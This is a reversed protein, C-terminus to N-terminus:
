EQQNMFSFKLMNPTGNRAENSIYLDGNPAFCIGEPQKFLKKNLRYGAKIKGNQDAILLLHNVSAILYWDGTKPHIAAGSIQLNDNKNLLEKVPSELAINFALVSDFQDTILNYSFVAPSVPFAICNKCFILLRSKGPDHLIAEFDNKGKLNIKSEKSSISDTFPHSIKLVDGNSKLAYPYPDVFCIDEYDGGKHFRSRLQQKSDAISISFLVGQEDNVANIANRADDFYIGSIEDLEESLVTKEPEQWNYGVPGDTQINQKGGSKCAIFFIFAIIVLSNRLPM